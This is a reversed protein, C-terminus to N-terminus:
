ISLSLFSRQQQQQKNNTIKTTTKVIQSSPFFYTEHVAVPRWCHPFSHKRRLEHPRFMVCKQVIWLFLFAYKAYLEHPCFITMFFCLQRSYNFVVTVGCQPWYKRNEHFREWHVSVSSYLDDNNLCRMQHVPFIARATWKVATFTVTFVTGLQLMRLFRVSEAYLPM